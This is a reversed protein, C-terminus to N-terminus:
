PKVASRHHFQTELDKDILENLIEFAIRLERRRYPRLQNRVIRSDDDSLPKLKDYCISYHDRLTRMGKAMLQSLRNHNVNMSQSLEAFSKPPQGDILGFHEKIILQQRAPLESLVKDLLPRIVTKIYYDQPSLNESTLPPLTESHNSAAPAAETMVTIPKKNLNLPSSYVVAQEEPRLIRNQHQYAPRPVGGNARLERDREGIRRALQQIQEQDMLWEANLAEKDLHHQEWSRSTKAKSLEVLLRAVDEYDHTELPDWKSFDIARDGCYAYDRLLKCCDLLRYFRYSEPTISGTKLYGQELSHRLYQYEAIPTSTNQLDWATSALEYLSPSLPKSQASNSHRLGVDIMSLGHQPDYLFNHLNAEGHTFSCNGPNNQFQQIATEVEKQTLPFLPGWNKYLVEQLQRLQQSFKAVYSAPLPTVGHSHLEGLAVGVARVAEHAKFLVKQHEPGKAARSLQEITWGVPQGPLHSLYLTVSKEKFEVGLMRPLSSHRLHLNSLADLTKIEALLAERPQDRSGFTEVKSVISTEATLPIISIRSCETQNKLHRPLKHKLMFNSLARCPQPTTFTESVHQYEVHKISDIVRLLHQKEQALAYRLETTFELQPQTFGVIKRDLPRPEVTQARRAGKVITSAKSVGKIVGGVAVANTLIRGATYAADTSSITPLAIPPREADGLPLVLANATSVAKDLILNAVGICPEIVLADIPHQCIHRSEDRVGQSFASSLRTLLNPPRAVAPPAANGSTYSQRLAALKTTTSHLNDTTAERVDRHQGFLAASPPALALHNQAGVFQHYRAYTTSYQAALDRQLQLQQRQPNGSGQTSREDDQDRPPVTKKSQTTKM